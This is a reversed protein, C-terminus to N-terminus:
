ETSFSKDDLRSDFFRLVYSIEMCINQTMMCHFILPVSFFKRWRRSKFREMVREDYSSASYRLKSTEDENSAM